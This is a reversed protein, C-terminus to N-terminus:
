KKKIYNSFDKVTCLKETSDATLEVGFRNKILGLLVFYDISTGGLDAFFHDAVGVTDPARDLAEAFCDRIETELGAHLIEIHADLEKPDFVRIRGAALSAALKKRSIKFENGKMLPEHTFLIRRVVGELKADALAAQLDTYIRRLADSSFCGPVSVILTAVRNEDAFICLRDVGAVCIEAEALVPNLNEGDEGVILDDMRGLLYYRGDEVRALDNTSFWKEFDTKYEEGNWLIRSAM